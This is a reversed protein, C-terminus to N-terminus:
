SGGAPPQRRRDLALVLALAVFFPGLRELVDGPADPMLYFAVTLLFGALMGALGAAPAPRRGAAALVVLPGFAAGLANWAFLVRSYIAEPVFIALAVAALSFALLAARTRALSIRRDVDVTVSSTATILQSDVTSMIASMVAVAIVGAFVPPLWAQAAIYLVQEGNGPPAALARGAWGAVLMGALILAIWAIAIIGGKRIAADDRAAMFHNVVHPQGFAGLGIGFIGAVFALGGLAAPASPSPAAAAALVADLGGTAVIGAVPLVVAIALMLAGQVFDTVSAAWFGGALTYAVTVAAGALICAEVPLGLTVAFAQGAADFQAAVYFLFSLLIIAAAVRRHHRRQHGGFLLQVLSLSGDAASLRRLRPAIWLWNVCYGAVVSAWIWAADLGWLFAAGSVGALTWASSQTAGQSLAAVWPGLRRGSLFFDAADRTRRTAWAGIALMLAGYGAITLIAWGRLDM